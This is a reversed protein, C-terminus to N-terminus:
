DEETEEPEVPTPVSQEVIGNPEIGLNEELNKASIRALSAVFDGNGLDMVRVGRTARGTPHIGKVELRLVIGNASMLTIQDEEEVVRAAVIKGIQPIHAQNITKMGKTGRGKSAYESLATRKGYGKETVILLYADPEVVQMSTLRDSKDLLIGRVGGAQRSTPRITKEAMRLSKGESTVLIIDDKGSTLGVWGLEDDDDLNMAILGSPRVNELDSIHLRKVKANVTAM